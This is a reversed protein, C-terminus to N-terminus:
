GWLPTNEDLFHVSWWGLHPSRPPASITAVLTWSLHLGVGTPRYIKPTFGATLLCQGRANKKSGWFPYFVHSTLPSVVPPGSHVTVFHLNVSSRLTLCSFLPLSTTWVECFLPLANLGNAKNPSSKQACRLTTHEKRHISRSLFHHNESIVLKYVVNYVLNYVLSKFCNQKAMSRLM